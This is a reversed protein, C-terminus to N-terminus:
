GVRKVGSQDLSAALEGITKKVVPHVFGPAIEALPAMVFARLHADPHPVRLAGSELVAEGYFLIDLDITRPGWRGTRERGMSDEIAKLTKLLEMPELATRAEAAANIFMPQDEVGWPETEYFSSVRVIEIGRGAMLGIAKRCNAVRDGLNSGLAIYATETHASM